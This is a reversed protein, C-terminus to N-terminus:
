KSKPSHAGQGPEVLSRLAMEVDALPQGAYLQIQGKRVVIVKMTCSKVAEDLEKVSLPMVEVSFDGLDEFFTELIYCFNNADGRDEFAVTYSSDRQDPTSSATKLTFLGGPEDPNSGRHMYVALVYPLNLWWLDTLISSREDMVKKLASKSRGKSKSSCNTRSGSHKNPVASNDHKYKASSRSTQMEVQSSGKSKVVEISSRGHSTEQIFGTKPETNQFEIERGMETGWRENQLNKGDIQVPKSDKRLPKGEAEEGFPISVSELLHGEPLDLQQEGDLLDRNDARGSKMMQDLSSNKVNAHNDDEEPQQFGKPKNRSGVTPNRFKFKKRFMLAGNVEEKVDSNNGNERDGFVESKSLNSILSVLSKDPISNLRKQMKVLRADVEKEISSRIRSVENESVKDGGELEDLPSVVGNAKLEQRERERAEKAMARIQVIKEELESEGVHVVDVPRPEVNGFFLKGNGNFLSKKVIKGTDESEDEGRLSGDKQDSNVSGLVWVACFTQFVFIGVLSLAFKLFGSGTSLNDVAASTETVQFEQSVRESLVRAGIDEGAVASCPAGSAENSPTELETSEIPVIPDQLPEQPLLPTPTPSPKTLTKLLKPRLYNKRRARKFPSPPSICSIVAPKKPAAATAPPLLFSFTACNAGAMSPDM